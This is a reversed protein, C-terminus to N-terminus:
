VPIENLERLLDNDIEGNLEDIYTISLIECERDHKGDDVFVNSFDYYKSNEDPHFRDGKYEKGNIYSDVVIIHQPEDTYAIIDDDYIERDLNAEVQFIRFRYGGIKNNLWKAETSNVKYCDGWKQPYNHCVNLVKNILNNIDMNESEFIKFLKLYKM